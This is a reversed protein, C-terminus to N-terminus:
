FEGSRDGAFVLQTHCDILAPSIWRGELSRTNAAQPADVSAGLWAIRGDASALAADELIGYDAGAMTAIRADTLLLDM